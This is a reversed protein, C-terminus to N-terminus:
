QLIRVDWAMALCCRSSPRRVADSEPRHRESSRTANQNSGADSSWAGSRRELQRSRRRRDYDPAAGQAPPGRATQRIRSRRTFQRRVPESIASSRLLNSSVRYNSANTTILSPDRTIM